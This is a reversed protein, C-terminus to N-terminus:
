KVIVFIQLEQDIKEIKLCSFFYERSIKQLIEILLFHEFSVEIVFFLNQYYAM